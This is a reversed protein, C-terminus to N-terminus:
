CAIARREDLHILKDIREELDKENALGGVCVIRLSPLMLEM